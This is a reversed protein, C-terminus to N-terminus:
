DGCAIVPKLTLLETVEMYKKIEKLVFRVTIHTAGLFLLVV